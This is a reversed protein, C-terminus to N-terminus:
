RAVVLVEEHVLLRPGPSSPTRSGPTEGVGQTGGPSPADSRLPPPQRLRPARREVADGDLVRAGEDQRAAEEEVM